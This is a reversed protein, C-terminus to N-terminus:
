RDCLGKKNRACITSPPTQNVSSSLFHSYVTATVAPCCFMRTRIM